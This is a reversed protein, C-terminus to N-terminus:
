IEHEYGKMKISFFDNVSSIQKYEFDINMITSVKEFFESYITKETPIQDCFEWLVIRDLNMTNLKQSIDILSNSTVSGTKRALFLHLDWRDNKYRVAHKELKSLAIIDSFRTDSSALISRDETSHQIINSGKIVDIRSVNKNKFLIKKIRYSQKFELLMIALSRDPDVYDDMIVWLKNKVIKRKPINIQRLKQYHWIPNRQYFIENYLLTRCYIAKNGDDDIQIEFTYVTKNINKNIENINPIEITQRMSQERVLIWKDNAKQFAAKTTLNIQSSNDSDPIDALMNQNNNKQFNIFEHFIQNMRLNSKCLYKRISEMDQISSQDFAKIAKDFIALTARVNNNINGKLINRNQKFEFYANQRNYIINGSPQLADGSKCWLYHIVKEKYPTFFYFVDYMVSIPSYYVNNKTITTVIYEHSPNLKDSHFCMANFRVYGFNKFFSYNYGSRIIHKEPHVIEKIDIIKGTKKSVPQEVKKKTLNKHVPRCFFIGYGNNDFFVAQRVGEVYSHRNNTPNCNILRMASLEKLSFYYKNNFQKSYILTNKTASKFESEDISVNSQIYIKYMKNINYDDYRRGSNTYNLNIVDSPDFSEYRFARFDRKNSDYEWVTWNNQSPSYSYVLFALVYQNSEQVIDEKFKIFYFQEDRGLQTFAKGSNLWIPKPALKSSVDVCTVFLIIIIM